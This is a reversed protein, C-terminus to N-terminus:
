LIHDNKRSLTSVSFQPNQVEFVYEQQARLATFIEFSRSTMVCHLSVALIMFLLSSKFWKIGSGEKNTKKEPQFNYNFLINPKRRKAVGVSAHSTKDYSM